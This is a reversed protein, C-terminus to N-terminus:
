ANFVPERSLEPHRAQVEDLVEGVTGDLHDMATEMCEMMLETFFHMEEENMEEVRREYIFVYDKKGLLHELTLYCINSTSSNSYWVAKMEPLRPDLQVTNPQYTFTVSEYTAKPPNDFFQGREALRKMSNYDAHRFIKKQSDLMEQLAERVPMNDQIDSRWTLFTMRNGGSYRENITGRRNVIVRAAIDTQRHNLLSLTSRLALTALANESVKNEAISDVLREAREGGIVESDISAKPSINNILYRTKNEGQEEQQKEWANGPRVTPHTYLPEGERLTSNWFEQDAKERDSGNYLLEKEIMKVYDSKKPLLLTKGAAHSFYIAALYTMFMNISYGDALMHNFNIYVGSFGDCLRVLRVITMNKHLYEIPESTLDTLYKKASEESMDSLDLLPMEENWPEPNIYQYMEGNEDQGFRVNLAEMYEIAERMSQRMLEENMDMKFYFGVGLNMEQISAYHAFVKYLGGQVDTLPWTKVKVGNIEREKM